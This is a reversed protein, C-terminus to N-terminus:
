TGADSQTTGTHSTRTSPVTPPSEPDAVALSSSPDVKSMGDSLTASRLHKSDHLLVAAFAVSAALVYASIYTVHTTILRTPSEAALASSQHILQVRYPLYVDVILDSKM